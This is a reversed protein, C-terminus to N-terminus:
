ATTLHGTYTNTGESFATLVFANALANATGLYPFNTLYKQVENQM